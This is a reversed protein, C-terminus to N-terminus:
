PAEIWARAADDESLHFARAEAPMLFGFARIAAAIWEVETVVAIREWRGYHEMGVKLDDWVAAPDIGEFDAAVRYFLRLKGARKLATEVIPVLVKEYDAATVRGRCEFALVSPPFDRLHEIM